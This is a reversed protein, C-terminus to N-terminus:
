VRWILLGKGDVDVERSQVVEAISEVTKELSRQSLGIMAKYGGKGDADDGVAIM